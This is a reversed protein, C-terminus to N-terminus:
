MFRIMQSLRNRLTTVSIPSYYAAKGTIVISAPEESLSETNLKCSTNIIEASKSSLVVLIESIPVSVDGGIHLFL